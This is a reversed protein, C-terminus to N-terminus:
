QPVILATVAGVEALKTSTCGASDWWAGPESPRMDSMRSHQRRRSIRVTQVLAECEGNASPGASAKYPYRLSGSSVAHARCGGLGPVHRADEAPDGTM